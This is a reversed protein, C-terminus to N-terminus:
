LMETVVMHVKTQVFQEDREAEKTSKKQAVQTEKTLQRQQGNRVPVEALGPV